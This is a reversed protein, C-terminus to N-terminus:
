AYAAMGGACLMRGVQAARCADDAVADAAEEGRYKCQDGNLIIGGGGGRGGRCSPSCIRQCSATLCQSCEICPQAAARLGQKRAEVQPALLAASLLLVAATYTAATTWSRSSGSHRRHLCSVNRRIHILQNCQKPFEQAPNIDPVPCPMSCQQGVAAAHCQTRPM